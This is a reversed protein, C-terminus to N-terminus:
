GVFIDPLQLPALQSGLWQRRTEVRNRGREDIPLRLAEILRRMENRAALHSLSLRAVEDQADFDDLATLGRQFWERFIVREGIGHALRFGLEMSLECLCAHVRKENRSSVQAMRNRVVVWDIIGGSKQRRRRRADRVAGAYQALENIEFTEPDINALVDFDIFSDNIPTILTDAKRHAFVSLATHAGPTDIVVFDHAAMVAGMGEDFDQMQPSAFPTPGGIDDDSVLFHNPTPLEVGSREMWRRRYRAYRTLTQQRGDLDVTAVCFGLKVLSVAVHMATTSKGSGGKENGCVIVHCSQLRREHRGVAGLEEFHMGRAGWM